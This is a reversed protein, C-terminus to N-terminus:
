MYNIHIKGSIIKEAMFIGIISKADTIKGSLIMDTLDEVKHKETSIFEDTDACSKGEVLGVAAYMHLVEDSFGPTRHISALYIIERAKLGTEEM